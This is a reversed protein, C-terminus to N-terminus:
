KIPNKEVMGAKRPYKGPCIGVKQIVVIYHSLDSNYVETSIINRINGGLVEVAKKADDVEQFVAPGKQCLVVGGKRAFPLTYESLVALNAVARSLVYDYEERYGRRKGYDEARGHIIDAKLGLRKMLESLFITRKNLSDLLTLNIDQQIIKLPIGPFGAGTGVDIVKGNTLDYGSQICSISDLFHKIIIEMDDTISTLNIKENWEVLMEKYIIFREVMEKDPEINFSKIGKKLVDIYDM